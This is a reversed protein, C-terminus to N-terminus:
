RTSGEPSVRVKVTSTSGSAGCRMAVIRTSYRGARPGRCVRGPRNPLGRTWRPYVSGFDMGPWKRYVQVLEEPAAVGGLPRLLIGHVASFTAADEVLEM